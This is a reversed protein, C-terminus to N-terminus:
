HNNYFRNKIVNLSHEVSIAIYTRNTPKCNIEDVTRHHTSNQPAVPIISASMSYIDGTSQKLQFNLTNIFYLNISILLILIRTQM